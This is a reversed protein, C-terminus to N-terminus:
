AVDDIDDGRRIDFARLAVERAIKRVMSVKARATSSQIGVEKAIEAATPHEDYDDDLAPAFWMRAIIGLQPNVKDCEAISLMILRKREVAHLDSDSEVTEKAVHNHLDDLNEAPQLARLDELTCEMGQRKYDARTRKLRENTTKVIEADTPERNLENFLQARTKEMERLRRKVGVMGSAQNFGASSDIFATAASNSRYQLLGYWTVVEDLKAPSAVFERLLADAAIRVFQWFEDLWTNRDAGFDRCLRVAISKNMKDTKALFDNILHERLTEDTEEVIAELFARLDEATFETTMTTM